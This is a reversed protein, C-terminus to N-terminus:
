SCSSLMSVRVKLHSVVRALFFEPFLQHDIDDPAPVIDGVKTAMVYRQYMFRNDGWVKSSSVVVISDPVLARFGLEHAPVGWGSGM